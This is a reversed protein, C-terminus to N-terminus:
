ACLLTPFELGSVFYAYRSDKGCIICLVILCTSFPLNNQVSNFPLTPFQYGSLDIVKLLSPLYGIAGSLVVNCVHRLRKMKRFSGANLHLTRQEPLRMTIGQISNTGLLKYTVTATNESFVLFVDDASWLRGRINALKLPNKAVSKLILSRKEPHLSWMTQPDQYAFDAFCRTTPTSDNRRPQGAVVLHDDSSHSSVFPNLWMTPPDQYSLDPFCASWGFCEKQWFSPNSPVKHIGTEEQDDQLIYVGCRTVVKTSRKSDSFSIRCKRIDLPYCLQFIVSAPLYFLQINGPKLLFNRELIRAPLSDDRLIELSLMLEVSELQIVACIIIGSLKTLIDPYLLISISKGEQKNTFWDPIDDGPLIVEIESDRVFHQLKNTTVNAVDNSIIKAMIQGHTKVLSKCDSADLKLVSQPLEPIEWLLECKSLNLDSLNFLKCFSPLRLFKNRALNLSELKSFSYPNMLFDVESLNCNELDLSKLNPFEFSSCIQTVLPFLKPRHLLEDFKSFTINKPFKSLKSCDGLVLHELNLLKYISTPIFMLEVCSFLNFKKLGVLLEISSPLEKIATGSLDLCGLHKMKHVINPFNDFILCGRFNLTTFSKSVLNSPFSRLTSCSELGLTVLGKLYGVSEHIEVLNSCHSLLLKELNPVTSLDPIKRLFKSCSLNVVKLEDFNKFGKGFQRIHSHPMSLMVLQKPGSNFSFTPFQYGPIEIFRLDNPLCNITTSLVVNDFVLLRLRKMKKFSKDNLYLTRQELLKLM